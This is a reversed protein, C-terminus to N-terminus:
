KNSGPRGIGYCPMVVLYIPSVASGFKLGNM